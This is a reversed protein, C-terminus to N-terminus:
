NQEQNKRQQVYYKYKKNVAFICVCSLYFVVKKMNLM